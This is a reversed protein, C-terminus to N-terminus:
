GFPKDTLQKINRVSKRLEDANVHWLPALGLGGANSVAAVLADTVVGAMPALVVPHEIGFTECFGKQM